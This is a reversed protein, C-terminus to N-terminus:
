KKSGQVVRNKLSFGLDIIGLIRVIFMFLFPFLLTLILITIPLAKHMKKFDAYFFIFSLGQIALFVSTLTIVNFAVVYLSSDAKDGSIMGILLAFFYIWIVSIPLNFQKFPPFALRKHHLRNIVKYSLWQSMFACFVSAVAISSPLLDKFVNMQEEVQILLTQIDSSPVGFQGMMAEMMQMSDKLAIDFQHYINIGMVFQLILIVLVFGVIFGLTGQAWVEYPRVGRYMAFGIMVGGIGVLLTIPLSVITAIIFSLIIAAIFMVIAAKIGHRETYMIFPIPLLFIGIMVMFPIFVCLLLLVNYVAILFAGDTIKKSQNM